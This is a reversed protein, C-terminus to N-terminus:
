RAPPTRSAPPPTLPATKRARGGRGGRRGSRAAKETQPPTAVVAGAAMHRVAEGLMLWANQAAALGQLVVAQEGGGRSRHVLVVTDGEATVETCHGDGVVVWKGPATM